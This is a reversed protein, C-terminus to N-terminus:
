IPILRIMGKLLYAARITSVSGTPGQISNIRILKTLMSKRTHAYAHKTLIYMNVKAWNAQPEMQWLVGQFYQCHMVLKLHNSELNCNMKWFINQWFEMWVPMSRYPSIHQKLFNNFFYHDKKPMSMICAILIDLWKKGWFFFFIDLWKMHSTIIYDLEFMCIADVFYSECLLTHPCFCEMYNKRNSVSTM